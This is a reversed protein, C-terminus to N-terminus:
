ERIMKKVLKAHLILFENKKYRTIISLFIDNEDVHISFPVLSRKSLLYPTSFTSPISSAIYISFPKWLSNNQNTSLYILNQKKLFSSDFIDSLQFVDRARNGDAYFVVNQFRSLDCDKHIHLWGTPHKTQYYSHTKYFDNEKELVFPYSFSTGEISLFGRTDKNKSLFPTMDVEMFDKVIYQYYIDNLNEPPRIYTSESDNRKHYTANLLSLDTIIKVMENKEEMYIGIKLFVFILFLFSIMFLFINKYKLKVKRKRVSGGNINYSM